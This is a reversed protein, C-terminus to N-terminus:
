RDEGPDFRYGVGWVTVIANSSTGLKRRLRSVHVDLARECGERETDLAAEVLARRTIAEGARRVLAAFIEFESRTLEIDEDAVTVKRAQLDIQLEGRVIPGERLLSPRRLRAQVRAVLEEPWFPKTMYDDAGLKFARMKDDTEDRASLILVPLDSRRRLYKMVDHGHMGPLMLDLIVLAYRDLQASLIADGEALWDVQFGERELNTRMQRALSEDDEVILLRPGVATQGRRPRPDQDPQRM